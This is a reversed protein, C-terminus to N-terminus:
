WRTVIDSDADGEKTERMEEVKAAVLNSNEIAEMIMKYVRAEELGCSTMEKALIELEFAGDSDIRDIREEICKTKRPFGRLDSVKYEKLLRGDLVDDFM